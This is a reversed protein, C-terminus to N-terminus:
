DIPAIESLLFDYLRQYTSESYHVGDAATYGNETLYHYSDIWYVEEPLNEQMIENFEEIQANTPSSPNENVPNVSEYFVKCGKATWDDVRQSVATVYRDINSVDNVGMNIVINTAGNKILSEAQWIGYQVFWDYGMRAEAVFAAKEDDYEVAKEMQVTRSDGIFITFNDVTTDPEEVIEEEATEEQMAAEELLAAEEAAISEAELAALEAPNVKEILDEGLYSSGAEATRVVFVGLAVVLIVSLAIALHEWIQWTRIERKSPTHNEKKMFM